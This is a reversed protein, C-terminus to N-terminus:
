ISVAMAKTKLDGLDKLFLSLVPFSYSSFAKSFVFILMNERYTNNIQIIKM